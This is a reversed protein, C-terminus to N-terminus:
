QLTEKEKQEKGKIPVDVLVGDLDASNDDMVEEMLEGYLRSITFTNPDIEDEESEIKIENKSSCISPKLRDKEVNKLLDISRTILKDKVGM